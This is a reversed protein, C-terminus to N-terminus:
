AHGEIFLVADLGVIDAAGDSLGCGFVAILNFDIGGILVVKLEDILM